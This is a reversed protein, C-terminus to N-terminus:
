SKQPRSYRKMWKIAWQKADEKTRIEMNLQAFYLQRALRGLDPGPSAGLSTLDHGDLLPKPKLEVNGLSKIRKNLKVLPGISKGAAKLLAMQFNYLDRFYPETLLMKLQALSMDEDLLRGRGNLLFKTHKIQNRSLKLVAIKKLAFAPTCGAFLASLGLPFSINQPLRSLVKIAAKIQKDPFDPFIAKALGSKLLNSVGGARGTSTLIGELEMAIREGSVKTINHANERIAAFTKPAIKFGLQASFRVARLMRLYDESFRLEPPGITRIIKKKLDARGGVYDIVKKDIPDFFIGNITFDRRAADSAPDTFSVKQPHRGDAYDAEARFTAVEVQSGDLLVIVVGFKAGVKLTRNFLKIIQNPQANTAVDYDKAPRRLLMDRVCGGALLAQYGNQRLVKVIKIAADKNTM